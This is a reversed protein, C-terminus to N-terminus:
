TLRRARFPDAYVFEESLVQSAMEVYPIFYMLNLRSCIALPM